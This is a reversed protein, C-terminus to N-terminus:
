KTIRKIMAERMAQYEKKGGRIRFKDKTLAGIIAGLGCGVVAGSLGGVLAMEGPSVVVWHQSSGGGGDSGILGTIAGAFVGIIAGTLVGRGVRGQRKLTIQQIDVYNFRRDASEALGQLQFPVPYAVLCAASDTLKSLYGATKVNKTTVMVARYTRSKHSVSDQAKVSQSLLAALSLITILPKM